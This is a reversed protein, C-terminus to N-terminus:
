EANRCRGPPATGSTAPTSSSAARSSAASTTAAPAARSRVSSSAPRNSPVTPMTTECSTGGSDTSTTSWTYSLAGSPTISAYSPLSSAGGLIDYGQTGYAGIWNGSTTSDDRLLPATTGASSVTVNAGGTISSTATDTATISQAGTTAFAATFAAYPNHGRDDPAPDVITSAAADSFATRIFGPEVLVVDIGFGAVEFRLADSM